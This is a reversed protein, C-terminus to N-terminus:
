DKAEWCGCIERSECCDEGIRGVGFVVEGDGGEIASCALSEAAAPEGDLRRERFDVKEDM